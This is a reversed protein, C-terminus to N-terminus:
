NIGGAKKSLQYRYSQKEGLIYGIFALFVGGFISTSLYFIAINLQSTGFFGFFDAALTSMTTFGGCFGGGLGAKWIDNLKVHVLWGTLFGLLLSGILNEILTGLPFLFSVTQINLAYRLVTGFAGGIGVAFFIRVVKLNM